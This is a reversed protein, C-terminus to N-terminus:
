LGCLEQVKGVKWQLRGALCALRGKVGMTRNSCIKGALAQTTGKIIRLFGKTRYRTSLKM